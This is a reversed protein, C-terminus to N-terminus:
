EGDKEQEKDRMAKWGAAFGVEFYTFFDAYHNDSDMWGDWAKLMAKKDPEGTLRALEDELEDIIEECGRRCRACYGDYDFDHKCKSM